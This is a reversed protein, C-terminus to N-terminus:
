RPPSKAFENANKWGVGDM